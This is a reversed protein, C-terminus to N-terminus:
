AGPPTRRWTVEAGAERALLRACVFLVDSLRNLFRGAQPNTTDPEVAALAWFAREARRAVARALHAAAAAPAGGPLVFEVLPPLGENFKALIADLSAVHAETIVHAGPVAFEGGLDFLQHQLPALFDRVRAPMELTLVIGVQCNLEDIEGLAAIRLGDKPVRSGDALGAQGKDGTRTAIRSLRHEAM